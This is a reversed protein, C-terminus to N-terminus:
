QPDARRNTSSRLTSRSAGLTITLSTWVASGGDVPSAGDTDPTEIIEIRFSECKQIAPRFEIDYTRNQTTYTPPTDYYADDSLTVDGLEEFSNWTLEERRAPEYDYAIYMKVDHRSRMEGLLKIRYLRQAHQLGAMAIWPTVLRRTVAEGDDLNTNKNEVWVSGDTKSIVFNDNWVTCSTAEHNTYVFWQNQYYNYVLCVGDSHVWRIEDRDELLVADTTTLNKFYDVPKGIPSLSLSRDLLYFGDKSKFIIGGDFRVISRPYPCGVNSSIRQPNQLYDSNQGTDSPGQGVQVHLSSEKFLILKDDLVKTAFVRSQEELVRFELDPNFQFALNKKKTKSFLITNARDRNSLLIRGQYDEISGSSGSSISSLVGGNTYLIEHTILDDNDVTDVVTVAGLELDNNDQEPNGDEVNYFVTSSTANRYITIGVESVETAVTRSKYTLNQTSVVVNTQKNGTSTIERSLSPASLHRDGNRDTWDYVSVYNNLGAPVNGTGSESIFGISPYYLFNQEFVQYGDYNFLIGASIYLTNEKALVTYGELSNLEFTLLAHNSIPEFVSSSITEFENSILTSITINDGNKSVKSMNRLFVFTGTEAVLAQCVPYMKYFTEDGNSDQVRQENARLVIVSNQERFKLLSPMTVCVYLNNNSDFFPDSIPITNEVVQAYTDLANANTITYSRTGISGSKTSNFFLYCTDDKAIMSPRSFGVGAVTETNDQRNTLDLDYVYTYFPQGSTGRTGVVYVNDNVGDSFGTVNINDIGAPPTFTVPDAPLGDAVGGSTGDEQMYSLTFDNNAGVDDTIGVLINDSFSVVDYNEIDTASPFIDRRSIIDLTNTNIEFADLLNFSVSSPKRLCYVIINDGKIACNPLAYAPNFDLGVRLFREQTLTKKTASDIITIMLYDGVGIDSAPISACVTIGNNTISDVTRVGKADRYVQESKAIANGIFGKWYWLDTDVEYGYLSTDTIAILEDDITALKQINTITGGDPTVGAVSFTTLPLADYGNRKYSSGDKKNLNTNEAVLLPGPQVIKADTITDVGKGLLLQMDQKSLAM